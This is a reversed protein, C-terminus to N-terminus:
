FAEGHVPSNIFAGTAVPPPPFSDAAVPATTGAQPGTKLRTTTVRTAETLDSAQNDAAETLKHIKASGIPGLGLKRSLIQADTHPM